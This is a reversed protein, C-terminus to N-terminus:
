VAEACTGGGGSVSKEIGFPRHIVGREGPDGEGARRDRRGSQGLGLEDPLSPMRSGPGAGAKSTARGRRWAALFGGGAAGIGIAILTEALTGGSGTLAPGPLANVAALLATFALAIAAGGAATVAATRPAHPGGALRRLALPWAGAVLLPPLHYDCAPAPGGPRAV